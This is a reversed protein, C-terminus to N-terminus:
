ASLPKPPFTPRAHSVIQGGIITKHLHLADDVLVFDADYGPAIKGKHKWGFQEAANGSSLRALTDWDLNFWGQMNRVAQIMTLVSGALTGDPLLAKGNAVTVTNGGLDYVGENAGAGAMADTILLIGDAGKAQLALRIAEPAVHHGDAIIEVRVRNDTLFIPIPGPKRHHLPPMANFLHTAQRVGAQIAQVTETATADTHGQSVVIGAELCARILDHGGPREPALTILRLTNGAIALWEAFEDACYDRVFQRPQAGPREPHIYPGELHVGLIQAGEPCFASGAEIAQRAQHLAAGIAERSQTITTLLLGTTGNQAHTRCIAQLAEPTAEMTDRGGGGHIHVDLFGPLLTLGTADLTTASIDALWDQVAVIKGNKVTVTGAPITGTGGTVIRCGTITQADSGSV